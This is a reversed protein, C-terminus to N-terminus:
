QTLSESESLFYCIDEVISEYDVWDFPYEDRIKTSEQFGEILSSTSLDNICIADVIEYDASRLDSPAPNQAYRMTKRMMVITFKGDSSQYCDTIAAHSFPHRRVFHDSEIYNSLTKLITSNENNIINM